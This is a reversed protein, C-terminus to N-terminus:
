MVWSTTCSMEGILSCPSIQLEAWGLPASSIAYSTLYQCICIKFVQTVNNCRYICGVVKLSDMETDNPVATKNENFGYLVCEQVKTQKKIKLHFNTTIRRKAHQNPKHFLNFRKKQRELFHQKM